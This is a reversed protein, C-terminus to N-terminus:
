KYQERRDGFARVRRRWARYSGPKLSERMLAKVQKDGLGYEGKIDAFSVHDSLAMQVIDDIHAPSLTKPDM